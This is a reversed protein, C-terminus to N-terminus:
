AAHIFVPAGAARVGARSAPFLAAIAVILLLLAVVISFGGGFPAARPWEVICDFRFEQKDLKASM